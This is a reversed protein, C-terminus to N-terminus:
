LLSETRSVTEDGPIIKGHGTPKRKRHQIMLGLFHRLDCDLVPITSEEINDTLVELWAIQMPEPDLYGSLVPVLMAKSPSSGRPCRNKKKM